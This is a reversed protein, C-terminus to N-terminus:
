FNFPTNETEVKIKAGCFPCFNIKLKEEGYRDQVFLTYKSNLYDFSVINRRYAEKLTKCCWDEKAMIYGFPHYTIKFYAIVNEKQQM